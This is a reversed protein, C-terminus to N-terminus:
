MLRRQRSTMQLMMLLGMTGFVYLFGRNGTDQAGSNM